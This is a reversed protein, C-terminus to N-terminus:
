ASVLKRLESPLINEPHELQDLADFDCDRLSRIFLLLDDGPIFWEYEWHLHSFRSHLLKEHRRDGPRTALLSVPGSTMGTALCSGRAIDTIRKRVDKATGIKVLGDRAAFYVRSGDLPPAVRNVMEWSLVRDAYVKQLWPINEENSIYYELEVRVSSEHQGCLHWGLFSRCGSRQCQYGRETAAQCQWSEGYGGRFPRLDRMPFPMPPSNYCFLNRDPLHVFEGSVNEYAPRKCAPCTSQEPL